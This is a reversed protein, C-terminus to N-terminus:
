IIKNMELHQYAAYLTRIQWESSVALYIKTGIKNQYEISYKIWSCMSIFGHLNDCSESNSYLQEPKFQRTIWSEAKSLKKLMKYNIGIDLFLKLIDESPRKIFDLKNFRFLKGNKYVDIQGFRQSASWSSSDTSYPSYHILWDPRVFALYHIKKNKFRELIYKAFEKAGQGGQVGGIFVYSDNETLRYLYDISDGRTFVPAVDYGLELSKKYNEQTEKPNFVVDLQVQADPKLWKISDLFRLYDNFEIKFGSNYASFAGSDIILRFKSRDIKSFEELAKSTFYPYAYLINLKKDYM